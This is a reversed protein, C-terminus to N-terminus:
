EMRRHGLLVEIILVPIQPVKLLLLDVNKSDVLCNEHIPCNRCFYDLGFHGIAEEVAGVCVVDFSKQILHCRVVSM